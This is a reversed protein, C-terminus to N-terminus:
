KKHPCGICVTSSKAKQDVSCAWCVQAEDVDPMNDWDIIVVEIEKDCKVIEAIGGRVEILVHM